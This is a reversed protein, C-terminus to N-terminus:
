HIFKLVNTFAWNLDVKGKNAFVRAKEEVTQGEDDLGIFDFFRAVRAKYRDKTMPAKTAYLFL